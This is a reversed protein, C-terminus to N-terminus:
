CPCNVNTGMETTVERMMPNGILAMLVQKQITLLWGCERQCSRPSQPHKKWEMKFREKHEKWEKVSVDQLGKFARWAVDIDWRNQSGEQECEWTEKAEKAQQM